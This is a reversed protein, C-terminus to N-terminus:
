WAGRVTVAASRDGVSPAAQVAGRSGGVAWLTIGGAALLGGAIFSVTALDAASKASRLTDAATGNPCVSDSNCGASDADSKKSMAQLGFFTGLGLGAVGACGIIVGLTSASHGSSPPTSAEPPARVPTTVAVGPGAQALPGVSGPAGVPSSAGGPPPATGTGPATNPGPGGSPGPAAGPGPSGAPAPATPPVVYPARPPMAPSPGAYGIAIPKDKEGEAVMAQLIAHPAGNAPRFEFVHVGPDIEISKGDLVNALLRGDMAVSVDTLPTGDPARASLVITPIDHGVGILWDGCGKQKAELTCTNVCTRFQDRAELLRHENRLVQGQEYSSNCIPDDARALPARLWFALLAL